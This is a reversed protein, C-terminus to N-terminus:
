IPTRLPMRGVVTDCKALDDFGPQTGYNLVAPGLFRKLQALGREIAIGYLASVLSKRVSHGSIRRTTDGWEAVLRGDSIAIVATSGLERVVRRLQAPRDM